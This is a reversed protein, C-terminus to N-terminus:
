WVVSDPPPWVIFMAQGQGAPWRPRCAGGGCPPPAKKKARGGPRTLEGGAPPRGARCSVKGRPGRQGPFNRTLLCSSQVPLRLPPSSCRTPALKGSSQRSRRKAEGGEQAFKQQSRASAGPKVRDPT